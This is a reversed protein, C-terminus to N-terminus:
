AHDTDERRKEELEAFHRITSDLESHRALAMEQPSEAPTKGNAMAEKLLEKGIGPKGIFIDLNRNRFGSNEATLVFSSDYAACSGGRVMLEAREEPSETLGLIPKKVTGKKAQGTFRSRGAAKRVIKALGLGTVCIYTAIYLWKFIYNALYLWEACKSTKM